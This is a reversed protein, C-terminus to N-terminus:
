FKLKTERPGCINSFEYLIVSLRTQQTRRINALSRSRIVYIQGHVIMVFMLKRLLQQYPKETPIDTPAREIHLKPEIPSLTTMRNQVRFSRAVDEIMVKQYTALEGNEQDHVINM